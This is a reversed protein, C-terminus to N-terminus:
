ESDTVRTRLRGRALTIEVEQGIEVGESGLLVTRDPLRRTISYGRALIALPNLADLATRLRRHEVRQGRCRDAMTSSLDTTTAALEQRLRCIRHVPSAADLRHAMWQLQERHRQNRRDLSRFVRGTADDLRLRLEQVRRGPHVLRKRLEQVRERRPAAMRVMASKLAKTLAACRQLLESKLPVVMEAAASPTPARLDAVFDAITVDTEHGVASVVPIPSAFIARAVTETNFPQLDELSGGGRALIVVDVAGMAGIGALADAIREPAPDGQVPVPSLHIELNPFRRRSVTLIDQFAAGTASTVVAIRRPVPPLPKKRSSDFLGEEALRRKLQEFAAQLAGLGAPEVFELIIQYAGRPPYVTLRGLGTVRRGDALDVDLRRKQNRFIVAAIQAGDDKLTFYCHGSSPIRLNSIEGSIWLFPYNDELLAKINETLDSVSYIRRSPKHFDNTM